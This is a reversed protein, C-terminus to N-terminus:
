PTAYAVCSHDSEHDRSSLTRGLSERLSGCNFNFTIGGDNEGEDRRGKRENDSEGEEIWDTLGHRHCPKRTDRDSNSRPNPALRAKLPTNIWLSITPHSILCKGRNAGRQQAHRWCTTLITTLLAHLINKISKSNELLSLTVPLYPPLKADVM